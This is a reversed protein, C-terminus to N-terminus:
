GLRSRVLEFVLESERACTDLLQELEATAADAFARDKLSPTNIYVNLAASRLATNAALVGVGADSIVGAYGKEGARKSLAVVQACARACALPTETAARLSSQIAAARRSKDEETVKPLRYAAMLGDFAAIDEAVMATLRRRLKESDDRVSKMDAEVAEHGKKGITVNCVMSILAAGMAGMIAAASGGGPTPAGSALEDLFTELPRQAIM